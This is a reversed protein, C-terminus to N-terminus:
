WLATAMRWSIRSPMVVRCTTPITFRALWNENDPDFHRLGELVASIGVTQFANKVDGQLSIHHPHLRLHESVGVFNIQTGRPQSVALHCVRGDAGGVFHTRLADAASHSLCKGIIRRHIDTVGIPRIKERGQEAAGKKTVAALRAGGASLAISAPVKGGSLTDLLYRHYLKLVAPHRRAIPKLFEVRFGFRDQSKGSKSRLIDRKM